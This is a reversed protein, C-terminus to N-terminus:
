NGIRHKHRQYLKLIRDYSVGEIEAVKRCSEGQSFGRDRFREVLHVVIGSFMDNLNPKGAFLVEAPDAGKSIDEMCSALAEVAMGHHEADDANRLWGALLGCWERGLDENKTGRTNM